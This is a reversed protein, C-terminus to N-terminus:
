SKCHVYRPVLVDRERDKERETDHRKCSILDQMLVNWIKLSVVRPLGSQVWSNHKEGFIPQELNKVACTNFCRMVDTAAISM